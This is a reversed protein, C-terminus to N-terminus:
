EGELNTEGFSYDAETGDEAVARALTKVSLFCFRDKDLRFGTVEEDQGGGHRTERTSLGVSRRGLVDVMRFINVVVDQEGDETAAVFHKVKEGAPKGVKARVVVHFQEAAAHGGEERAVHGGNVELTLVNGIKELGDVEQGQLGAGKKLNLRENMADFVFKRADFGACEKVLSKDGPRAELLSVSRQEVVVDVAGQQWSCM